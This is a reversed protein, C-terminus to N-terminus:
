LASRWCDIGSRIDPQRLVDQAARNGLASRRVHPGIFKLSPRLRAWGRSWGAEPDSSPSIQCPIAEIIPLLLEQWEHIIRRASDAANNSQPSGARALAWLLSVTVAFKATSAPGAMYRPLPNRWLIPLVCGGEDKTLGILGLSNREEWLLNKGSVTVRGTSNQAFVQALQWLVTASFFLPFLRPRRRVLGRKRM